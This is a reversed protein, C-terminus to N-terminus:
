AKPAEAAPAAEAKEEAKAPAGKAQKDHQTAQLKEGAILKADVLLNHVTPTCAAGKALWAKISAENIKLSKPNTRPNYTGVIEFSKGWPDRRKDQVVMRYTPQKTKGVRSLRIIIM